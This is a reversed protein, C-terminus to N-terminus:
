VKTNTHKFLESLTKGDVVAQLVVSHLGKHNYYDKLALDCQDIYQVWIYKLLFLTYFCM